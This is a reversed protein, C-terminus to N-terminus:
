RGRWRGRRWRGVNWPRVHLRERNSKKGEAGRNGMTRQRALGERRIEASLGVSGAQTEAGAAPSTLAGKDAERALEQHCLCRSVTSARTGSPPSVFPSPHLSGPGEVEEVFGDFRPERAGTHPRAGRVSWSLFTLVMQPLLPNETGTGAGVDVCEGPVWRWSQLM